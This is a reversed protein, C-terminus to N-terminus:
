IFLLLLFIITATEDFNFIRTVDAFAPNRKFVNELNDLFLNVHHKNFATAHSFCCGEEKLCPTTVVLRAVVLMKEQNADFVSKHAGQQQIM